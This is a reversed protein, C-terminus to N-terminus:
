QGLIGAELDSLIVDTATIGGEAIYWVTPNLYIINGNQYASTQHVLENDMVEQALQAGEANIAADRDLIFIYDPDLSVLLEFSAENGHTSDVDNALNTFGVENGIISCRSGNGLTNLNASTIIGSVATKGGAAEALAAVRSDFGALQKAAAEEMGFISAVTAANDKVSQIMGIDYNITNYIVPAIESLADYQEAMRGGIFIIDPELAILEEMDVEHLTGTNAIEENNFYDTLYEIPHAKPMGVVRDGLGWNDLMDLSPMDLTVIRQPDYPVEIEVPEKNGDRTTVTIFEPQQPEDSQSEISQTELSQLEISQTETNQTESSQSGSSQESTQGNCATLSLTMMIALALTLLKKM